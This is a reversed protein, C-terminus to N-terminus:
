LTPMADPRELRTLDKSCINISQVLLQGVYQLAKTAKASIIYIKYQQFNGGLFEFLELFLSNNFRWSYEVKWYSVKM